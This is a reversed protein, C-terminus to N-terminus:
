SLIEVTLDRFGHMRADNTLFTQCGHEVATALHLCDVTGFDYLAQILTARRFVNTTIPLILVDPRLFSGDYLRLLAFDSRRLPYSCCETRTLESLAIHDTQSIARLRAEAQPGFV